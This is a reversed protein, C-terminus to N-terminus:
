GKWHLVELQEPTYLLSDIFDPALRALIVFLILLLIVLGLIWLVIRWFRSLRRRSETATPAQVPATAPTTEPKPAEVAPEPVVPIDTSPAEVAPSFAEERKEPTDEAPTQPEMPEAPTITEEQEGPVEPEKIPAAEPAESPAPTDDLYAKLGDMAASFEEQSQHHTKLSVPELGFGSPWIDLDEDAVFFIHNERTARLRGLGPFAVAKRQQLTEKLGDLFGTIIRAGDARDVKNVRCYLDILSLDTIDDKQRFSLRRYPPQITYGRDSFTSPVIETVFAGIGPLAVEDKDLILEKVMKSLLDIDM